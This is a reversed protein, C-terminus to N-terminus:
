WDCAKRIKETVGQFGTLQFVHTAAGSIPHHARVVLEGSAAAMGKILAIAPAGEVLLGGGGALSEWSEAQLPGEGIRYEVRHDGTPFYLGILVVGTTKRICRVGLTSSSRAAQTTAMISPLGTLRDPTEDIRWISDGPQAPATKPTAAAAAALAAVFLLLAFMRGM